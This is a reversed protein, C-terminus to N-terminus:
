PSCGTTLISEVPCRLPVPECGPAVAALELDQYWSLSIRQRHGGASLGQYSLSNPIALIIPPVDSLDLPLDPPDEREELREDWYPELFRLGVNRPGELTVQATSFSGDFDFDEGTAGLELRACGPHRDGDNLTVRFTTAAEAFAVGPPLGESPPLLTIRYNAAAESRQDGIGVIEVAGHGYEEIEVEEPVLLQDAPVRRNVPLRLPSRLLEGSVVIVARVRGGEFLSARAPDAFGIWTRAASPPPPPMASTGTVHATWASLAPAETSGAAAAVRVHLRTEPALGEARYRTEVTPVVLDADTFAENSSIQAVYGIAGEVPDWSWEIFDVGTASVHLGTPIEPPAPISQGTVHTTWASLAPDQLTGAAAAVRVYVQTEPALGEARFRNETTAVIPDAETWTEDESVQVAYGVAGEVPNWTWEIFDQGTASVHLGTPVAPPAPASMGTVRTTWPSLVPAEVTGAAAAVRVYLRTEPALDMARFRTAVVPVTPDEDTWIEDQSVQVAYGIAGDVPNWM